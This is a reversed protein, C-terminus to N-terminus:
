KCGVIKQDKPKEVLQWTFNKQFSEIEGNM